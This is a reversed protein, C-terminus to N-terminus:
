EMLSRAFAIQEDSWKPFNEEQGIYRAIATARLDLEDSSYGTGQGSPSPLGMLFKRQDKTLDPLDAAKYNRSRIYLRAGENNVLGKRNRPDRMNENYPNVVIANDQAAYGAVDPRKRFFEREEDTERRVKFGFSQEVSSDRPAPNVGKAIDMWQRGSENRIAATIGKISDV